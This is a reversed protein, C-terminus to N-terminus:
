FSEGIVGLGQSIRTDGRGVDSGVLLPYQAHNEGELLNQIYEASMQGELADLRPPSMPPLPSITSDLM